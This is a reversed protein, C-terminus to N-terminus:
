VFAWPSGQHAHPSAVCHTPGDAGPEGRGCTRGRAGAGLGAGKPLQTGLVPIWLARSHTIKSLHSLGMRVSHTEGDM